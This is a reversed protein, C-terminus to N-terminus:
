KKGYQSKLDEIANLAAETPISTYGMTKTNPSSYVEEGDETRMGGKPIDKDEDHSPKKTRGLPFGCGSQAIFFYAIM